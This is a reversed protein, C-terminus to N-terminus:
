EGKSREVAQGLWVSSGRIAQNSFRFVQDRRVGGVWQDLNRGLQQAITRAQWQLAVTAAFVSHWPSLSKSEGLSEPSWILQRQTFDNYLGQLEQRRQQHSEDLALFTLLHLHETVFIDLHQFEELCRDRASIAYELHKAAGYAAIGRLPGSGLVVVESLGTMADRQAPQAMFGEAAESWNQLRRPLTQWRSGLPSAPDLLALFWTLAAVFSRTQPVESTYGPYLDEGEFENMASGLQWTQAVCRALSSDPHDSLLLTQAGSNQALMLAEITRPTRGSVSAGVVWDDSQLQSQWWRMDMAALARIPRGSELALMTAAATAAFHMDGCGVLWVRGRPQWQARREEIAPLLHELLTSQSRIERAMDDM